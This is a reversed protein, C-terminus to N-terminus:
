GSKCVFSCCRFSCDAAAFTQPCVGLAVANGPSGLEGGLVDAHSLWEDM